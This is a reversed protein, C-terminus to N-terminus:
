PGVSCLAAAHKLLDSIFFGVFPAWGRVFGVGGGGSVSLLRGGSRGLDQLLHLLHLLLGCRLHLLHLLLMGRAHLLQLLLKMVQLHVLLGLWVWSGGPGWLTLLVSGVVGGVVCPIGWIAGAAVAIVCTRAVLRGM